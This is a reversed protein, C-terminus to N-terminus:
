GLRFNLSSDQFLIALHRLTNPEKCSFPGAVTLVTFTGVFLLMVKEFLKYSGSGLLAAQIAALVGVVAITAGTDINPFFLVVAQRSWGNAWGAGNPRYFVRNPRIGSAM